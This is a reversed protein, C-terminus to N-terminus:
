PEVIATVIGDYSYLNQWTMGTTMTTGTTYYDYSGYYNMLRAGDNAFGGSDAVFSSGASYGMDICFQDVSAQDARIPLPGFYWSGESAMITLGTTIIAM